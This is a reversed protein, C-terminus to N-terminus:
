AVARGLSDSLAKATKHHQGGIEKETKREERGKHFTGQLITKALGTSRSVIETM